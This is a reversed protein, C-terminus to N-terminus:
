VLKFPGVTKRASTKTGDRFNECTLNIDASDNLNEWVAFRNTIESQYHKRVELENIKKLNFREGDFKQAAQKSVELIERVKEVVLYYDTDCDAGRCNRVDLIISQWRRNILM